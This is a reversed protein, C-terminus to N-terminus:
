HDSELPLESRNAGVQLCGQTPYHRLENRRHFCQNLFTARPSNESRRAIDTQKQQKIDGLLTVDADDKKSKLNGELTKIKKERDALNKKANDLEMKLQAM